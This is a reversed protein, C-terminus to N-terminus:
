SHDASRRRRKEGVSDSTERRIVSFRQATDFLTLQRKAMTLPPDLPPEMSSVKSFARKTRLVRASVRISCDIKKKKKPLSYPVYCVYM